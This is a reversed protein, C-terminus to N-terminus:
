RRLATLLILISASYLSYAESVVVYGKYIHEYIHEFVFFGYGAILIFLTALALAEFDGRRLGSEKRSLAILAVTQTLFFISLYRIFIMPHYLGYINELFLGAILGLLWVSATWREFLPAEFEPYTMFGENLVGKFTYYIIFTAPLDLYARLDYGLLLALGSVLFLISSITIRAYTLKAKRIDYSNVLFALALALYSIFFINIM